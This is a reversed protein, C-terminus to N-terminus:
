TPGASKTLGKLSPLTPWHGRRQRKGHAKFELEQPSGERRTGLRSPGSPSSKLGKQRSERPLVPDRSCLGARWSTKLPLHEKM